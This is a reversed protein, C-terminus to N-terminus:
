KQELSVGLIGIKKVLAKALAWAPWVTSKGTSLQLYM